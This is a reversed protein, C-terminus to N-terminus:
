AEKEAKDKTTGSLMTELEKIHGVVSQNQLTLKKYESMAEDIKRKFQTNKKDLIKKTKKHEKIEMEAQHNEDEIADKEGRVM